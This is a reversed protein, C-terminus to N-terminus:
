VFFKTLMALYVGYNAILAINVLKYEEIDLKKKNTFFVALLLLPLLYRGQVGIITPNKFSTNYVYMATAIMAFSVLIIGTVLIKQYMTTKKKNEDSFFSMVVITIYSVPVIAYPSVQNHCLFHGAFMNELYDYANNVITRFLVTLYGIPNKYIWSNLTVETNESTGIDMATTKIMWITSALGLMIFIAVFIWKNRPKKFCEKPIFLWLGVLPLYAMKSIAIIFTLMVFIIYEWWKIKEKSEMFHLVYSIILFATIIIANDTTFSVAYSLVVPSLLVITAFLKHKPLKKIGFSLLLVTIILSSIRGLMAIYYPNLKLILGIKVGALQPFYSLGNYNGVTSIETKENENLKIKMMEKIDYYKKYERKKTESNVNVMDIVSQPLETKFENDKIPAIIEGQAAQFTRYLHAPEDSQACLPVVFCYIGGLMLGLIMYVIHPQLKQYIKKSFIVLILIVLGIVGLTSFFYKIHNNMDQINNEQLRLKFDIYYVGTFLAMIIIYYLFRCSVIKRIIEETKELFKKM